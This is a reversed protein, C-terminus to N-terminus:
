GYHMSMSVRDRSVTAPGLKQTYEEPPLQLDDLPCAHNQSAQMSSGICFPKGAPQHLSRMANQLATKLQSSASM